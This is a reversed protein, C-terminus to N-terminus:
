APPPALPGDAGVPPAARVPLARRVVSGGAGGDTAGWVGPLVGPGQLLLARPPPPWLRVGAVRLGPGPGRVRPVERAGAVRVVAARTRSGGPGPAAGGHGAAGGSAAPGRAHGEDRGVGRPGAVAGDTGVTWRWRERSWGM